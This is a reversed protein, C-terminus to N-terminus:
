WDMSYTKRKKLDIIKKSRKIKKNFFRYLIKWYKSLFFINVFLMRELVKELIKKPNSDM